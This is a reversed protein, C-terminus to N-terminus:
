MRACLYLLLDDLRKQSPALGSKALGFSSVIIVLRTAMIRKFIEPIVRWLFKFIAQIASYAKSRHDFIFKQRPFFRTYFIQYLLSGTALHTRRETVWQSGGKIM